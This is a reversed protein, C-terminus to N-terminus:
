HSLHDDPQREWFASCSRSFPQGHGADSAARRRVAGKPRALGGRQLGPTRSGEVPPGSRRGGEELGEPAVRGSADSRARAALEARLGPPPRVGAPVRARSGFHSSGSGRARSGFHRSGHSQCLISLGRSGEPTTPSSHPTEPRGRCGRSDRLDTKPPAWEPPKPRAGRPGM